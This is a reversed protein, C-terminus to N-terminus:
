LLHYTFGMTFRKQPHRAAIVRGLDGMLNKPLASLSQTPILSQAVIPSRGLVLGMEEPIEQGLQCGRDVLGHSGSRFSALIADDMLVIVPALYWLM